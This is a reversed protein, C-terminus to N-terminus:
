FVNVFYNYEFVSDSSIWDFIETLDGICTSIICTPNCLGILPQNFRSFDLHIPRTVIVENTPYNYMMCAMEGRDQM